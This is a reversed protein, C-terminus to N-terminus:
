LGLDGLLLRLVVITSVLVLLVACEVAGEELVQHEVLHGFIEGTEAVAGAVKVEQVYVPLVLPALARVTM